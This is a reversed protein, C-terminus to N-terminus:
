GEQVKEENKRKKRLLMLIVSLAVAGIIFAGVGILIKTLLSMGVKEYTISLKIAAANELNSYQATAKYFFAWPSNETVNEKYYVNWSNITRVGNFVANRYEEGESNVKYDGSWAGGTITYIKPNLGLSNLIAKEYGKWTPTNPNNPVNIGDLVYYEVDRGGFFKANVTFPKTGRGNIREKNVFKGKVTVSKGNINNTIDIEKPPNIDSSEELYTVKKTMPERKIEEWKVDKLYYKVGKVIIVEDIKKELLNSWEKEIIKEDPLVTEVKTVKYKKGNEEIMSPIDKTDGTGIENELYIPNDGKTTIIDYDKKIVTGAFVVSTAISFALFTVCVKRILKM